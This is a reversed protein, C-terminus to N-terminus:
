FGPNTHVTTTSYATPIVVSNARVVVYAYAPFGGFVGTSADISGLPPTFIQNGYYMVGTGGTCGTFSNSTIGTYTIVQMSNDSLVINLTGSSPFSVTGGAVYITAQPLTAGHSSSGIYTYLGLNWSQLAWTVTQDPLQAITASFSQINGTPNSPSIVVVPTDYIVITLDDTTSPDQESEGHITLTVPLSGAPTAYYYATLGGIREIKGTLDSGGIADDIYWKASPAPAGTSTAVIALTGYHQIYQTSAGNISFTMTTAPVDSFVQMSASSSVGLTATISAFGEDIATILGYADVTIIANNTSSWTAINTIDAHHGNELTAMATFQMTEGILFLSDRKYITINSIDLVELDGPHHGIFNNTTYYVDNANRLFWNHIGDSTTGEALPTQVWVGDNYYFTNDGGLGIYIHDEDVGVIPHYSSSGFHDQVTNFSIIEWASGADTSRYVYGNTDDNTISIWINQDDAAWIGQRSIAGSSGLTFSSFMNSSLSEGDYIYLKGTGGLWIHSDDLVFLIHLGPTDESDILQNWSEGNDGSNYLGQNTLMYISDAGVGGTDYITIEGDVTYGDWSSDGVSHLYTDVEPDNAAGTAFISTSSAVYISGTTSQSFTDPSAPGTEQTWTAGSDTSKIISAPASDYLAYVNIGDSTGNIGWIDQSDETNTYSVGWYTYGTTLTYTDSVLGLTATIDASGAGVITALGASSITLIDEDSSEWTAYSTASRSSDDDYVATALFQQTAGSASGLSVEIAILAPTTTLTTSGSYLGITATIDITGNLVPSAVVLGKVIALNSVQVDDLHYYTEDGAGDMHDSFYLQIEQGAYPTLDVTWQVWEEADDALYFIQELTTVGTADRIEAVQQDYTIGDDSYFWTWFTLYTTTTTSTPVIINQTLVSNGTNPENTQGILASYTGSHTQATSITPLNTGGTSSTSWGTLDGSEFNGNITPDAQAPLDVNYIIAVDEDSVSWTALSTIDQTTLDTYLATATYAQAAGLVLTSDAPEVTISDIAVTHASAEGFVDNFTATITTSGIGITTLLGASNITAVDEDSSTWIVIDTLDTATLDDFTAIATFQQDEGLFLQVDSPTVVISDLAPISFSIEDTPTGIEGNPGVAAVRYYHTTEPTLGTHRYFIDETNTLVPTHAVSLGPTTGHYINYSSAQSVARWNLKVVNGM